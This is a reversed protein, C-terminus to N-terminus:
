EKEDAIKPSKIKPLIQITFRKNNDEVKDRDIGNFGSGCIQVETNYKRLDIGKRQWLQYVALAREYSIKYGNNNDRSIRHDYTNAMNGELIMLYSFDPNEESLTKLLIEIEKGIAVVKNTYKPLIVTENPLFIEVGLFDKAVFKRTAEYYVFSGSQVLPQFQKDIQLLRKANALEMETKAMSNRLVAIALVFLVLMVFFLSTMLDSYSTWFFSERKSM